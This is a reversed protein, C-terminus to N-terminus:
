KKDFIYLFAGQFLGLAVLFIGFLKRLSITNISNALFSGLVSFIVGAIIIPISVKYDILKNKAHIILAFISMPIFSLLNIGQSELQGINLFITLIPILLTGGGMGLGGLIGSFLGSLVLWFYFM